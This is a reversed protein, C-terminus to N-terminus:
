FPMAICAYRAGAKGTMPDTIKEHIIISKAETARVAWNVSVTNKGVGAADTAFDLWVENMTNAFPATAAEEATPAPTHQYHGGAKETACDLKHLHSGFQAMPPLNAVELTITTKVGDYWATASGTINKAPNETVGMPLMDNFVTWAGTSEAVVDGYASGGCGSSLAAGGVVLSMSLLIKGYHCARNM